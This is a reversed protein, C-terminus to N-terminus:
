KAFILYAILGAVVFFELSILYIFFKKQESMKKKIEEYKNNMEELIKLQNSDIKSGLDLFNKQGIEYYDTSQSSIRESHRAISATVQRLSNSIREKIEVVNEESKSDQQTLHKAINHTSDTLDTVLKIANSIREKLETVNEESKSDQQTLHNIVSHASDTLNSYNENQNSFIEQFKPELSKFGNFIMETQEILKNDQLEIHKLVTSSSDIITSSIDKEFEIINELLPLLNGIRINIEDTNKQVLEHGTNELNFVDTLTSKISSFENENEVANSKIASIVENKQELYFDKLNIFDKEVKEMKLQWNEQTQKILDSSELKLANILLQHRNDVAELLSDIQDIKAKANLLTENSQSLESILASASTIKEKFVSLERQFDNM